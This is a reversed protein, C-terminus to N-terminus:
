DLDGRMKALAFNYSMLIENSKSSRKHDVRNEGLDDLNKRQVLRVDDFPPFRRVFVSSAPQNSILDVYSAPIEAASLLEAPYWSRIRAWVIANPAFAEDTEEELESEEDSAADCDNTDNETIYETDDSNELDANEEVEAHDADDLPDFVPKLLKCNRCLGTEMLLCDVCTLVRGVIKGDDTRSFHHLKQIGRVVIGPVKEPREFRPVSM